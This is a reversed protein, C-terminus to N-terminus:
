LLDQPSPPVCPSPSSSQCCAFLRGVRSPAASSGHCAPLAPHHIALMAESQCPEVHGPLNMGPQRPPFSPLLSSSLPINAPSFLLYYICKRHKPRAVHRRDPSFVSSSSTGKVSCSADRQVLMHELNKWQFVINWNWVTPTAESRHRVTKIVRWNFTKLYEQHNTDLM